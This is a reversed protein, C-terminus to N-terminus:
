QDLMTSFFETVRRRYEGPSAAYNSGHAGGPVIWLDKPEKAAEFQAQARGSDAEGEGYILFVPRPSIKPLEDIPSIKWPDMGTQLWYSVAIAYLFARRLIPMQSDPEILDDGLNFYGGEAVVAAIETRQAAMRVAAAAGMSFGFIGIEEVEPRDLLFDLGAEADYIEKAGLTVSASPRACARSDIQLVGFGENVLFDIQPLNNGLAGGMGGLAVIAVGNRSPYYWARLDLSDRTKLWHEEPTPLNPLVQPEVRCAPHALFFIYTWALAANIVGYVLIGVLAAFVGLRALRQSRARPQQM